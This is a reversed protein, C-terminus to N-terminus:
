KQEDAERADLPIGLQDIKYRLVRRTVHLLLAAESLVGGSRQLAAEIAQRELNATLKPLDLGDAALAPVPWGGAPEPEAVAILPPLHAVDIPDADCTIM